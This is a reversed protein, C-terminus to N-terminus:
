FKFVNKGIEQIKFLFIFRSVLFPPFHFYDVGFWLIYTGMLMKFIYTILLTFIPSSM